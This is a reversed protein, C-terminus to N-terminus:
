LRVIETGIHHNGLFYRYVKNSAPSDSSILLGTVVTYGNFDSCIKVKECVGDISVLICSENPRLLKLSSNALVLEDNSFRHSGIESYRIPIWSSSRIVYTLSENM